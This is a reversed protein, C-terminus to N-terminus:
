KTKILDKIINANIPEYINQYRSRIKKFIQKTSPVHERAKIALKNSSDFTVLNQIVDKFKL